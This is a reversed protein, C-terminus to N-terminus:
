SGYGMDFLGFSSEENPENRLLVMKHGFCMNIFYKKGKNRDRIERSVMNRVM